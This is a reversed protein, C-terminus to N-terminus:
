PGTPNLLAGTDYIVINGSDFLRNIQAVTNFKTLVERSIISQPVDDQFYTDELPLATSLRTDVVLYRIQGAQLLAIDANDFRTSYFLPYVDVSDALDTVSRQEGYTNMLMQNIRDTAIRNDPGLYHLSWLAAQIGEPEISRADAVVLYPGPINTLNPGTAVIINGLFIVLIASTILSIARRSLTRTPWFHTILITLTYAIPLFLFAAARDSIETGFSTFRFAQTLPYLLSVLGLTIALANERHLRQLSILGFPLSFTVLAIAGTIFLKDWIPPAQETGSFLPRASGAGTIIQGLQGFASSFYESLYSWVPNGPLFFAYALSLLLASLAFVALHIRIKQPVPRFFSVGAWLLLLGAFVYSTMHHTMIVAVLVLWATALVWRQNKGGDAYRVLIYIMLIALPLALTEYSYSSDFFTFHQNVMYLLLAIGAMRSSKTLQEFFLFLALVMLIHAAATVIIGAHFLSIRTTMSIANTILELGPYYPSVPLMSNLSFLRGTRFIDAATRWHLFEDFSSFSSPSRMFDALYLAFGLMFLLCIREVRTPTRSLLRILNPMFIIFLGGLFCVEVALYVYGWISLYYSLSVLFLGSASTLALLPALGLDPRVMQLGRTLQGEPQPEQLRAMGVHLMQRLRTPLGREAEDSTTDQGASVSAQDVITEQDRMWQDDLTSPKPSSARIIDLALTEQQEVPPPSWAFDIVRDLSPDSQPLNDLAPPSLVNQLLSTEQDAILLQDELQEPRPTEQDQAVGMTPKTDQVTELSSTEQDVLPSLEVPQSDQERRRNYQSARFPRKM